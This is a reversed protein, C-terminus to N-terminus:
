PNYIFNIDYITLSCGVTEPLPILFTRWCFWLLFCPYHCPKFFARTQEDAVLSFKLNVLIFNLLATETLDTGNLKEWKEKKKCNIRLRITKPIFSYNFEM